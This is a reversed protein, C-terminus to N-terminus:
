LCHKKNEKSKVTLNYALIIKFPTILFNGSDNITFKFM